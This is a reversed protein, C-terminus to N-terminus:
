LLTRLCTHMLIVQINFCLDRPGCWLKLDTLESPAGPRPVVLLSGPSTLMTPGPVGPQTVLSWDLGDWLLHSIGFRM